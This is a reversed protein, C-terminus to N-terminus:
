HSTINQKTLLKDSYDIYGDIEAEDVLAPIPMLMDVAGASSLENITVHGAYDFLVEINGDNDLDAIFYGKKLYLKTINNSWIENVENEKSLSLIKNGDIIVIKQEGKTFARVNSNEQNFLKAEDSSLKIPKYIKSSLENVPKTSAFFALGACKQGIYQNNFSYNLFTDDGRMTRMTEISKFHLFCPRDFTPIYLRKVVEDISIYRREGIPFRLQNFIIKSRGVAERDILGVLFTRYLSVLEEDHEIAKNEVSSALSPGFFIFCTLLLNLIWKRIL